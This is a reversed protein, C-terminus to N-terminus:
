ESLRRLTEFRIGFDFPDVCCLSLVTNNASPKPIAACIKDIKADCDGVVYEIDANPAIRKSRTKLAALLDPSEECFVYKDFPHHVTLALIPSGKLVVSTNQIRALGAGSYLDVYVRKGWKDKMGTAFLEDYLAVLRYKQEAWSGVQPCVLGDDEARLAERASSM